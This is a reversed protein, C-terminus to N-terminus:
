TVLFRLYKVKVSMNIFISAQKAKYLGGLKSIKINIVDCANQSHATLLAQLSEINEDLIFPLNTHQRVQLSAFHRRNFSHFETMIM